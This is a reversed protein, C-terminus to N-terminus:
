TLAKIRDKKHQLIIMKIIYAYFLWNITSENSRNLLNKEDSSVFIGCYFFSSFM